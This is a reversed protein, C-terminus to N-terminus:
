VNLIGEEALHINPSAKGEGKNAGGPIDLILISYVFIISTPSCSFKFTLVKM